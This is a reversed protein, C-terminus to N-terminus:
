FMLSYLKIPGPGGGAGEIILRGPEDPRQIRELDIVMGQREAALHPSVPPDFVFTSPHTEASSVGAWRIVRNRDTEEAAGTQIPKWYKWELAAVLLASLMTKGVGTDTGTIFLDTM